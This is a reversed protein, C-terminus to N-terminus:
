AAVNKITKSLILYVVSVLAFLLTFFIWAMACSYSYRMQTFAIQQITRMLANSYDTFADIISYIVNVLILPSIIPFTIEWYIEWGTAGEIRAAEYVQAPVNQMAALFILIQVGSRWLMDFITDIANSFTTVLSLPLKISLLMEQLGSSKFITASQQNGMRITQNFIDEQLIAIIIGSTVIVPLFFVARALLRGKFRQNLIYAIFLSFLLIIPVQVAMNGFTQGLLLLYDPDKTLAFDYHYLGLWEVAFLGGEFSVQSFSYIFSTVLPQIFLLVAGIILPLVFLLGTRAQAQALTRRRKKARLM